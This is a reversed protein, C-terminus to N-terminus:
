SFWPAAYIMKGWPLGSATCERLILSFILDGVLSAVSPQHTDKPCEDCAVNFGGHKRYTGPPCPICTFTYVFHGARCHFILKEKRILDASLGRPSKFSEAFRAIMRKKGFVEVGKHFLLCSDSCMHSKFGFSPIFLGAIHVRGRQDKSPPVDCSSEFKFECEAVFLFSSIYLLFISLYSFNFLYKWRLIKRRTIVNILIDGRFGFLM